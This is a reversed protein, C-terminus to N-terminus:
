LKNKILNRFIWGAMDYGSLQIASYAFPYKKKLKAKFQEENMECIVVPYTIVEKPQAPLYRKELERMSLSWDFQKNEM